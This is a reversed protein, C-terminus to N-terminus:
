PASDDHNYLRAPGGPRSYGLIEGATLLSSVPVGYLSSYSLNGLSILPNLDNEDFPSLIEYHLPLIIPNQHGTVPNLLYYPPWKIFGFNTDWYILGFHSNYILWPNAKNLDWVLCPQVPLVTNSKIYTVLPIPIGTLPNIPSLAPSWLPWLVNYPPMAQWYQAKASPLTISISIILIFSIFLIKMFLKRLM